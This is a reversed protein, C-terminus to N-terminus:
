CGLENEEEKEKGKTHQARAILTERVAASADGSNCQNGLPPICVSCGECTADRACLLDLPWESDCFLLSMKLVMMCGVLLCCPAPLDWALAADACGRWCLALATPVGLRRLGVAAVRLAGSLALLMALLAEASSVATTLLPLAACALAAPLLLLMLSLLLLLLLALLLESGAM